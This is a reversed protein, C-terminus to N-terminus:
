VDLIFKALESVRNFTSLRIFDKQLLGQAQNRSVFNAYIVRKNLESQNVPEIRRLRGNALILSGAPAYVPVALTEDSATSGSDDSRQSGPFFALGGNMENFDDLLWLAQMSVEGLNDSLRKPNEMGGVPLTERATLESLKFDTGMIQTLGSLLEPYTYLQDFLEGENVLNGVEN